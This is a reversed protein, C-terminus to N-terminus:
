SSPDELEAAAAPVRELMAGRAHSLEDRDVAWAALEDAALEDQTITQEDPSADRLRAVVLAHATQRGLIIEVADAFALRETDLPLGHARLSDSQRSRVYGLTM